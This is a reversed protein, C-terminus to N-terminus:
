EEFAEGPIYSWGYKSMFEEIEDSFSKKRHHEEQSKIYRRVAPIHSESVSVAWYDDQWVFKSTILKNKNIWWSSEGKILQSVKSIPQDRGLSVLCHVHEQYGNLCDIWIEKEKANEYIHDFVKKRTEKPSLLPIKDKTTFVVHVWIRIFSM